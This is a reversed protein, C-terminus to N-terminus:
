KREPMRFDKLAKNIFDNFPKMYRFMEVSTKAFNEANLVIKDKVYYELYWSKHKVYEAL